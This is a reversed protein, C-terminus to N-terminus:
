NLRITTGKLLGACAIGNVPKGNVGTATFKTKWADGEGCGFFTYGQPQVNTLGVSEAAKITGEADSCATLTCLLLIAFIKKM